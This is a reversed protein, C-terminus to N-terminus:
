GRLRRGPGGHAGLPKRRGTLVGMLWEVPGTGAFRWWLYGAAMTGPVIVLWGLYDNGTPRTGGPAWLALVGVHLVYLSLSVAGAAVLPVVVAGVVREARPAGTTALRVTLVYVLLVLGVDHLTDPLSGSSVDTDPRLRLLVPLVLYALPAVALMTWLLVDRRFGHRLLLAGLLFFPLLNTVRYQAGLVVWSAVRSPLGEPDASVWLLESRAWHNVPASLLAAAATVTALWRTPLLVLPAGVILLVGLQCLVVAVWSGWEGMWVGLAILLLGRAVQQLLMRGRQTRATRASVLQASMGMVLAFLPSAVDNVTGMLFRLAEPVRPLFPVAHAIVMALIAAGRLVDPVLLRPGGVAGSPTM